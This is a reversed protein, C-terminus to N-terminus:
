IYLREGDRTMIVCGFTVKQDGLKGYSLFYLDNAMKTLVPENQFSQSHAQM